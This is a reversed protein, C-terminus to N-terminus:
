NIFKDKSSSHKTRQKRNGKHDDPWLPRHSLYCTVLWTYYVTEVALKPRHTKQSNQSSVHSRPHWYSASCPTEPTRLVLMAKPNRWVQAAELLDTLKQLFQPGPYPYSPSPMSNPFNPCDRLFCQIDAPWIKRSVAAAEPINASYSIRTQKNEQKDKSQKNEGGLVSLAAQTHM